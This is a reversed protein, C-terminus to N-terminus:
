IGTGVVLLMGLSVEVGTGVLLLTGLSVEVGTGVEWIMGFADTGIDDNLTVVLEGM